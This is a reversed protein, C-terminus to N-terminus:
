KRRSPTWGPWRWRWCGIRGTSAPCAPMTFAERSTASPSAMRWSATTVTTLRSRGKPLKRCLLSPVVHSSGGEANRFCVSQGHCAAVQRKWQCFKSISNIGPKQAIFCLVTFGTALAGLCGFDDPLVWTCSELPNVKWLGADTHCDTASVCFSYEQQLHREEQYLLAWHAPLLVCVYIGERGTATVLQLVLHVKVTM